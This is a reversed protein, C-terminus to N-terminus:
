RRVGTNQKRDMKLIGVLDPASTGMGLKITKGNQDYTTTVSTIRDVLTAVDPDIVTVIDGCVFDTGYTYAQSETNYEFELSETGAKLTLTENGRQTLQDTTTCDTADIYDEFRDRGAPEGPNGPVVAYTKQLIRAAAAGAGAVYITNRYGLVSEQYDYSLVNGLDATLIVEDSLDTSAYVTFLFTYRATPAAAAGSWVLDCSLESSKNFETLTDLLSQARGQFQCPGGQLYDVAALSLGTIVRNTDAAGGVGKANPGANTDVYHRMATEYAPTQLIQTWGTDTGYTLDAFSGATNSGWVTINKCGEDLSAGVWHFNEYYIRTIVHTSGLDIHFRQASGAEARWAMNVPTGILSKSPDTAYYGRYSSTDTTVKVYTADQSPPYHSTYSPSFLGDSTQLVIRRLGLNYTAGYNTAIKLAYYRYATTNMLYLYQPDVQDLAVHQIMQFASGTAVDFGTSTSYGNMLKRRELLALIGRGSITWQEGAAGSPKKVDEIIGIKMLGDDGLFGIHGQTQIETMLQYLDIKASDIKLEWTHPEYWNETFTFSEANKIRGVPDMNADFVILECEEHM